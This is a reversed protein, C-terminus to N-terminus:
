NKKRGFLGNLLGTAAKGVDDSGTISKLKEQAMGRVDPEFSPSSSTGRVFFPVSTDGKVGIATMLAGGTHLKVRMTFNLAHNAAVTGNGSLEGIDPVILSIDDARLGGPDMHVKSGFTQITTSSGSKLGALKAVTSIKSGLDYGALMTDRLGLTGDIVMKDTPGDVTMEASAFGGQLSSGAPLVIDLAPLMTELDPVPMNPASLKMKLQAGEGELTYAGVIAAKAKGIFVGGRKLTGSHTAMQHTIAFEIDMPKSAPTGGKVLKLREGKAKGQVEAKMGDYGLNGDLSVVGDVGVAPSVFGSGVLQLGSVKLDAMVPTRAADTQNLPGIKGQLKVDGGGAVSTSFSFPFASAISFDQAQIEVKEFVQPKVKTGTKGLTVRGNSIKVLKVSVDLPTKGSAEPGGKAARSSQSGLSSFNWTGSPAQLLQIEPQDIKLGTVNLSRSVILPMLDVGVDLSKARLFLERSFAPDDAISLDSATVSGSLIALKLDGLKVERGLAQTLTAELRPRFQNADILFPLAVLGVVLILVLIGLIRFLKKM